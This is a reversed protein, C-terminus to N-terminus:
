KPPAVVEVNFWKNGDTVRGTQKRVTQDWNTWNDVPFPDSIITSVPTPATTTTTEPPATTTTDPAAEQPRTRNMQGSAPAPRAGALPVPYPPPVDPGGVNGYLQLTASLSDNPVLGELQAVVDEFSNAENPPAPIAVGATDYLPGFYWGPGGVVNVSGTTGALDAPVNMSLDVYRMPGVNRYPRLGVRLSMRSGAVLRIPPQAPGTNSIPAPVLTGDPRRVDVSAVSYKTYASSVTGSLNVSTIRVDDFANTDLAAIQNYVDYSSGYSVDYTDAYRNSVDVEFREGSSRTGRIVWRLQSAGGGIRDFVRDLNGILHFQAAEPLFRQLDVETSGSRMANDDASTVTSDIIASAPGRGARSRLGAQRDQDVAGVVGGFNALKYPGFVDPQVLVSSAVHASMSTAGLLQFPHGFALAVKTTGVNCVVTTTGVAGMTVDGHAITAAFNSGPFIDEAPAPEATAGAGTSGAAYVRTGPFTNELQPGSTRLRSQGVGSVGLPIPLQRLGSSAEAATAGGSAVVRREIGAPLDVQHVAEAPPESAGAAPNGPPPLLPTPGPAPPASQSAAQAAVPRELLSYMDEAPTVGAINSAGALGYAIAGVLRGDEAYVPSGSMGAWVGGARTLAASETDVIVMDVDPAIGDDIVGLVTATFEGPKTGREVTLGRVEQGDTLDGVPYAEPCAPTVEPPDAVRGSGRTAAENTASATTTPLGTVGLTLGLGVALATGSRRRRGRRDAAQENSWHVAM